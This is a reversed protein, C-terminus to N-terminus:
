WKWRHARRGVGKGKKAKLKYSFSSMMPERPPKRQIHGFRRLHTEKLNADIPARGSHKRIHENIIRNKKTKDCLWRLMRM